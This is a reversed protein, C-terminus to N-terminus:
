SSIEPLSPYWNYQAGPNLENYNGEEFYLTVVIPSNNAFVEQQYLVSSISCVASTDVTVQTSSIYATIIEQLGTLPGSRWELVKGVDDATFWSAATTVTSGSQTCFASGFGIAIFAKLILSENRDYVVSNLTPIKTRGSLDYFINVSVDKSGWRDDEYNDGITIRAAYATRDPNPYPILPTLHSIGVGKIEKFAPLFDNLTETHANGTSYKFSLTGIRRVPARGAEGVMIFRNNFQQDDFDSADKILDYITVENNTFTKWIIDASSLVRRITKNGYGVGGSVSLGYQSLVILEILMLSVGVPATIFTNNFVSSYLNNIISLQFVSDTNAAYKIVVKKDEIADGRFSINGGEIILSSPTGLAETELIYADGNLPNSISYRGFSIFNDRLKINFPHNPSYIWHAGIVDEADVGVLEAQFYHDSNGALHLFGGQVGYGAMFFGDVFVKSSVDFRMVFNVVSAQCEKWHWQVSQLQQCWYGYQVYSFSCNEIHFFDNNGDFYTVSDSLTRIGSNAFYRAGTASIAMEESSSNSIYGTNDGFGVNIYRHQRQTRNGIATDRLIPAIIGDLIIATNTSRYGWFSLDQLIFYECGDVMFFYKGSLSTTAPNVCFRFGGGKGPAQSSGVIKVFCNSINIQNTIGYYGSLRIEFAVIGSFPSYSFGYFSNFMKQIAPTSDVDGSVLTTSTSPNILQVAGFWEPYVITNASSDQNIRITLDDDFIQMAQADIKGNVIISGSGQLKAGPDFRITKGAPVTLTGSITVQQYADFVVTIVSPHSLVAQLATTKDGPGFIDAWSARYPGDVLRKWKQGGGDQFVFVNDVTTGSSVKILFGGADPSYGLNVADNIIM